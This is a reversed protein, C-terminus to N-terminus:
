NLHGEPRAKRGKELCNKRRAIHVTFIFCVFLCIFLRGKRQLRADLHIALICIYGIGHFFLLLFVSFLVIKTASEFSTVTAFTTAHNTEGNPAHNAHKKEMAM